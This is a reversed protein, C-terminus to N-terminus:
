KKTNREKFSIYGVASAIIAMACLDLYIGLRSTDTNAISYLNVVSGVMILFAALILLIKITKM